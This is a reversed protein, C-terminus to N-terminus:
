AKVEKKATTRRAPVKKLAPKAAPKAATKVPKTEVKVNLDDVFSVVALQANDGRRVSSRKVRLYGSNRGGLKPALDDVL